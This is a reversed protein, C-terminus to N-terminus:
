RKLASDHVLIGRVKPIFLLCLTVTTPLLLFFSLCGVLADVHENILFALPIGVIVCVVVSYIAMCVFHSDNLSHVKVKRTIWAIFCGIVLVLVKYGLM